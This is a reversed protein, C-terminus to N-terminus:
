WCTLALLQLILVASVSGKCWPGPQYKISVKVNSKIGEMKCKKNNEDTHTELKESLVDIIVTRTKGM